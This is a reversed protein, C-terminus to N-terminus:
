ATWTNSRTRSFTMTTQSDPLGVGECNSWGEEWGDDPRYHSRMVEMATHDPVGRPAIVKVSEKTEVQYEM